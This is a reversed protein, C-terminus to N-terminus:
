EDYKKKIALIDNFSSKFVHVLEPYFHKGREKEILAL